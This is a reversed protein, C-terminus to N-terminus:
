SLYRLVKGNLSLLVTRSKFSSNSYENVLIYKSLVNFRSINYSGSSYFLKEKGGKVPKRYVNCIKYTPYKSEVKTRKLYYLSNGVRLKASFSPAQYSLLERPDTIARRMKKVANLRKGKVSFLVGKPNFEKSYLLSNGYKFLCRAEKAKAVKKKGSGDLRMKYIYGTSMTFPGGTTVIKHHIYYIWKGIIVPCDGYALAKQSSGNKEIRYISFHTPGDADIYNEEKVYYIYRGKVSLKSFIGDAIKVNSKSKTNYVYLGGGYGEYYIETGSLVASGPSEAVKTGAYCIRVRCFMVLALVSIGILISKQLSQKSNM